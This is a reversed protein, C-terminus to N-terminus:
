SAAEPEPEPLPALDEETVVPMEAMPEAAAEARRADFARLLSTSWIYLGGGIAILASVGVSWM